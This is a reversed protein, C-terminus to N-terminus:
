LVGERTSGADQSTPEGPPQLLAALSQAAEADVVALVEDNTQLSTVGRPVVVKGARIIAAIVCHDPLDMDKIMIGIAPAGAPVKQEVLSYQGRRLKLLPMMDGLSMEEQILRAFVDAANLSVDVGMEPTFLWAYRPNNIRSIVRPVDFAFKALNAVALNGGDDPMAVVLVDAERIGAQELVRPDLPDGVHIVETPIERHLREIVNSRNEILRVKHDLEILLSTLHSGLRGGGIIIVFM